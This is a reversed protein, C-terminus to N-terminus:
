DYRLMICSGLVFQLYLLLQANIRYECRRSASSLCILTSVDYRTHNDRTFLDYAYWSRESIQKLYFQDIEISKM